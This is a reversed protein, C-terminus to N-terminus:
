FTDFFFSNLFKLKDFYTVYNNEFIKKIRSKNLHYWEKFYPLRQKMRTKMRNHICDSTKCFIQSNSKKDFENGCLKCKKTIMKYKTTRM